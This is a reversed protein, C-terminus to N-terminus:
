PLLSSNINGDHPVYVVSKANDMIDMADDTLVGSTGERWVAMPTRKALARHTRKTNFAFWAAIGSHAKLNIEKIGCDIM